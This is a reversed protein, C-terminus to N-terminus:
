HVQAAEGPVNLARVETTIGFAKATAELVKVACAECVCGNFACAVEGHTTGTKTVLYVSVPGAAAREVATECAEILADFAAAVEPIEFIRITGSM